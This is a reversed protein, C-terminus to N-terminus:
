DEVDKVHLSASDRLAIAELASTEVAFVAAIHTVDEAAVAEWARTVEEQLMSGVANGQSLLQLFLIYSPVLICSPLQLCMLLKKRKKLDACIPQMINQNVWSLM